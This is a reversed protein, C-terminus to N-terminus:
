VTKLNCGTQVDHGNQVDPDQTEGLFFVSDREDGFSGEEENIDREEPNVALIIVYKQTTM